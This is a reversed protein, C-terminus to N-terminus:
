QGLGMGDWHSPIPDTGDWTTGDWKCGQNTGYIRYFQFNRFFILIKTWIKNWWKTKDQHGERLKPWFDFNLLFWFKLLFRLKLLFQFKLCIDFNQYVDFNQDFISIKAFFRFKPSFNRHLFRCRYAIKM